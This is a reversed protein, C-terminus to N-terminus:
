CDKSRIDYACIKGTRSGILIGVGYKSDYCRGSGPKQLGMDYKM